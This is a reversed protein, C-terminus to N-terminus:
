SLQISIHQNSKTNQILSIFQWNSNPFVTVKKPPLLYPVRRMVPPLSRTVHPTWWTQPSSIPKISWHYISMMMLYMSPSQPWQDAPGPHCALQMPHGSNNPVHGLSDTSNRDTSMTVRPGARRGHISVLSRRDHLSCLQLFHLCSANGSLHPTVIFFDKVTFNQKM